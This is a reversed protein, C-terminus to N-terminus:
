NFNVKNAEKRGKIIDNYHHLHTFNNELESHWEKIRIKLANYLEESLSMDQDKLSQLMIFYIAANATLLICDKRCLAEM